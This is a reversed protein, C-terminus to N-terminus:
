GTGPNATGGVQGACEPGPHAAGHRPQMRHDLLSSCTAHDLLQLLLAAPRAGMLPLMARTRFAMCSCRREPPLYWMHSHSLSM